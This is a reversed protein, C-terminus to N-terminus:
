GERYVRHTISSRLQGTNILPKSSGKRAITSDANPPDIGAAIRNQVWAVVKIGLRELATTHDIEGRIIQLGLGQQLRQIEETHLDVTARIFSRQPVHGAGFEHVAAVELLSMPAGGGDDEKVADDLVGVRVRAPQQAATIRALMARAGNDRVSLTNV